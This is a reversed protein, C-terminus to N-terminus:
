IFLTTAARSADDVFTAAGAITLHPYELLDDQSIGMLSMSMECVTLQVGLQGALTVLESLSAIGMRKMRHQMMRRGFGLFDLKSLKRNDFGGPLMLGMLRDMFPKKTASGGSSKLAPSKLAPTGWFTFFMSVSMGSAAAGTAMTFAAMLRDLEGSYVMLCLRDSSPTGALRKELEDVRDALTQLLDPSKLSQTM